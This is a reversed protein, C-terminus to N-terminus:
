NNNVGSACVCSQLKHLVLFCTEPVIDTKIFVPHYVVYIRLVQLAESKIDRRDIIVAIIKVNDPFPEYAVVVIKELVKIKGKGWDKCNRNILLLLRPFEYVPIQVVTVGTVKLVFIDCVIYAIVRKGM